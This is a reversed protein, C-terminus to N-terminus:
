CLRNKFPDTKKLLKKMKDAASLLLWISSRVKYHFGRLLSLATQAAELFNPVM